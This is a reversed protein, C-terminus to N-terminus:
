STLSEGARVSYQEFLKDKVAFANVLKETCAKGLLHDPAYSVPSQMRLLTRAAEPTIAYASTYYLYGPKLLHASYPTSFRRLIAMVSLPFRGALSKAAHKVQVLRQRLSPKAPEWYDLYLLEWDGPLEKM